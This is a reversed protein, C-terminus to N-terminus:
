FTPGPGSPVSKMARGLTTQLAASKMNTRLSGVGGSVQAIEESSLETPQTPATTKSTNDTKLTM